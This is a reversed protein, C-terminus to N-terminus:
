VWFAQDFRTKSVISDDNLDATKTSNKWERRSSETASVIKHKPRMETQTLKENYIECNQLGLETWLQTYRKKRERPLKLSQIKLLKLTKIKKILNLTKSCKRTPVKRPNLM